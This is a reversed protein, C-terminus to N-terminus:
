PFYAELAHHLTTSFTARWDAGLLRSSVQCRYSIVPRTIRSTDIRDAAGRLCDTM